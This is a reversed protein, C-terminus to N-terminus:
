HVGKSLNASPNSDLAKARMRKARNVDCDHCWPCDDDGNEHCVCCCGLEVPESWGDNEAVDVHVNNDKPHTETDQTTMAKNDLVANRATEDLRYGDRPVAVGKEVCRDLWSVDVIPVSKKLAKRIRQTAKKAASETCILATVQKHVQGTVMAGLARCRDATTKYSNQHQQNKVALTSIALVMGSLPLLEKSSNCKKRRKKRNNSAPEQVAEEGEEEVEEKRRRGRKKSAISSMKFFQHAQKASWATQMFSRTIVDPGKSLFLMFRENEQFWWMNSRENAFSEQHEGEVFENNRPKGSFHCSAVSRAADLTWVLPDRQLLGCSSDPTSCM